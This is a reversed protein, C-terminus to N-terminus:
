GGVVIADLYSQLISSGEGDAFEKGADEMFPRASPMHYNAMGQEVFDVEPVGYDAGQMPTDNLIEVYDDGITPEYEGKGFLMPRSCSGGYRGSVEDIKHEFPDVWAYMSERVAEKIQAKIIGASWGM